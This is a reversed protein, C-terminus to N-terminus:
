SYARVLAAISLDEDLEDGYLCAAPIRMRARQEPTAALFRPFDSLPM